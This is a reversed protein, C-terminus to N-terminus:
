KEYPESKGYVVGKKFAEMAFDDDIAQLKMFLQDFLTQKAPLLTRRIDFYMKNIEKIRKNYAPSEL